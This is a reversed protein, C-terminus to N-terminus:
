DMQPGENNSYMNVDVAALTVQWQLVPNVQYM